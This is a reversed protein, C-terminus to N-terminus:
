VVPGAEASSPAIDVGMKNIPTQIPTIEEGNSLIFKELPIGNIAYIGRETLRKILNKKAAPSNIAVWKFDSVPIGDRLIVEHFNGNNKMLKFPTPAGKDNKGYNDGMNAWLDLRRMVAKHDIGIWNYYPAETATNSSPTIFIGSGSGVAMDKDPSMGTSSQLEGIGNIGRFYNAALGPNVGALISEWIDTDEGAYISHKFEEIPSVSMFEDVKADTLFFKVRGNADTEVVVDDVTINFDKKIKDLANKRATGKLNDDGWNSQGSFLSLLKNEAVVRLTGATSPKADIGLNELVMQFDGPTANVDLLIQVSNHNVSINQGTAAAHQFVIDAGTTNDNFEYRTGSNVFSPSPKGALQALTDESKGLMNTKKPYYIGTSKSVSTDGKLKNNMAAGFASTLKFKVEFKEVGNIDKIRNFVVSTEEIKDGDVAAGLGFRALVNDSRMADMISEVSFTGPHAKSWDAPGGTFAESSLPPLKPLKKVSKVKTNVASWEKLDSTYKEFKQNYETFYETKKAEYEAKEKNVNEQHAKKLPKNLEEQKDIADEAMKFLEEDVYKNSLLQNLYSKYGANGELVQQIKSWQTSKQVSDFKKNPNALYREEVKKLWESSDWKPLGNIVSEDFSPYDDLATPAVPEPKGYLPHETNNDVVEIVSLGSSKHETAKPSIPLGLGTEDYEAASAGAFNILQNQLAEEAQVSEVWASLPDVTSTDYKGYVSNQNQTLDKIGFKSDFKAIKKWPINTKIGASNVVKLSTKNIKEITYVDGTSSDALKIKDGVYVHEGTVTLSSNTGTPISVSAPVDYWSNFTSHYVNSSTLGTDKNSLTSPTKVMKDWTGNSNKVFFTSKNLAKWTSPQEVTVVTGVPYEDLQDANSIKQHLKVFESEKPADELVVPLTEAVDPAVLVYNSAASPNKEILYKFDNNTETKHSPKESTVEQYRWTNNKNKLYSGQIKGDKLYHVKTGAPVKVFEEYSIKDLGTNNELNFIDDPATSSSLKTNAYELATKFIDPADLNSLLFDDDVSIEDDTPVPNGEADVIQLSKFFDSSLPHPKITFTNKGDPTFTFSEKKVAAWSDESLKEQFAYLSTYFDEYLDKSESNDKKEVTSTVPYAIKWEGNKINDMTFDSHKIHNSDKAKWTNEKTKEFAIQSASKDQIISGIPADAASGQNDDWEVFDALEKNSVEKEEKVTPYTISWASTKISDMTNDSHLINLSGQAHWTNAGTKKFSVDTNNNKIISGIPADAAPGQNNDWAIVKSEEKSSEDVDDNNATTVPSEVGPTFTWGADKLNNIQGNIYTVSDNYRWSDPGDKTLVVSNFSVTSGMPANEASIGLAKTWLESKSEVKEEPADKKKDYEIQLKSFYNDLNTQLLYSDLTNGYLPSAAVTEKTGAGNKVIHVEFKADNSHWPEYQYHDDGLMIINNELFLSGDEFLEVFHNWSANESYTSEYDEWATKLEEVGVEIASYIDLGPMEKESADTSFSEVQTPIFVQFPSTHTKSEDFDLDKYVKDAQVGDQTFYHWLNPGVKIWGVNDSTHSTILTNIPLDSALKDNTYLWPEDTTYEIGNKITTKPATTNTDVEVNNATKETSKVASNKVSDNKSTLQSGKIIASSGDAWIVKASQQNVMINSVTGSKTEGKKTYSVVAGYKIETNSKGVIADQGNDLKYMTGPKASSLDFSAEPAKYEEEDEDIIATDDDLLADDALLKKKLAALAEQVEPSQAVSSTPQVDENTIEKEEAEDIASDFLEKEWDALPEEKKEEVNIIPDNGPLDNAKQILDDRRAKLREKLKFATNGEFDHKDVLTDIMDDTFSAVIAVSEKVQADTMDGFAAYAQYNDPDTRMSDWEGVTNTFMYDTKPSGMARFLLAGGPDIRIAKGTGDTLANDFTLGIVDWNALWADVAWGKQFEKRYESDNKIKNEFDDKADSLMPAITGLKGSGNVDSYGLELSNIGAIQYIDSALVENKAHLDSKSQKIFFHTGDPAEYEGGPNSGTSSKIKKWSSVDIPGAPTGSAIELEALEETTAVEEAVDNKAEEFSQNKSNKTILADLEETQQVGIFNKSPYYEKGDSGKVQIYPKTPDNKVVTGVGAPLLVNIFTGKTGNNSYTGYPKSQTGVPYLKDGVKFSNVSKVVSNAGTSKVYFSGPQNTENSSVEIDGITETKVEPAVKKGFNPIQSTDTIEKEFAETVDTTNVSPEAVDVPSTEKPMHINYSSVGGFKLGQTLIVSEDSTVTRKNAGQDVAWQNQGMKKIKIPGNNMTIVTNVPLTSVNFNETFPEAASYKDEPVSFNVTSLDFPFAKGKVLVASTDEVPKSDAEPQASLSTLTNIKKISNSGDPWSVRASKVGAYLAIVTGETTEGKKTYSVKDGIRFKQGNTGAMYKGTEDEHVSGLEKAPEEVVPEPTTFEVGSNGDTGSEETGPKPEGTGTSDGGGDSLNDGGTPQSVEGPAEQNSGTSEDSKGDNIEVGESNTKTLIPTIVANYRTGDSNPEISTVKFMTNRPLIVEEENEFSEIGWGNAKGVNYDIKHAKFGAPLEIKLNVAKADGYSNGAIWGEAMGKSSSTSSYAKDIYTGHNLMQELIKSNARIGRYVTTPEKLVSKDLISDLGAIEMKQLNLIGKTNNRLATNINSSDQVYTILAEEETFNYGPFGQFAKNFANYNSTILSENLTEKQLSTLKDKFAAPTLDSSLEVIAENDEEVVLKAEKELKPKSLFSIEDDHGFEQILETDSYAFGTGEKLWTGDEQKVFNIVEDKSLMRTGPEMNQLLKLKNKNKNIQTEDLEEDVSKNETAEKAQSVASKKGKVLNEPLKGIPAPSEIKAKKDDGENTPSGPVAKFVKAIHKPEYAMSEGSFGWASSYEKQILPKNQPNFGTVVGKSITGEAHLVVFDGKELETGEPAEEYDPGFPEADSAKNKHIKKFLENSKEVEPVVKTKSQSIEPAVSDNTDTPITAKAKVKELQSPPINITFIKEDSNPNPNKVEVVALGNPTVDVATGFMYKGLAPSYWKVGGGMLIWRGKKDRLQLKVRASKAAKSNGTAM